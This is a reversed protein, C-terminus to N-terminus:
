SPRQLLKLISFRWLAHAKVNEYDWTQGMERQIDQTNKTKLAPWVGPISPLEAETM